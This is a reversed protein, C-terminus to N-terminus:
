KQDEEIFSMCMQGELRMGKVLKNYTELEDMARGMYLHLLQRKEADTEALKYGGGPLAMVPVGKKRAARIKERMNRDNTALVAALRERTWVGGCSLIEHIEDM